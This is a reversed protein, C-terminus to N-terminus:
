TQALKGLTKSPLLLETLTPHRGSLNGVRYGGTDGTLALVSSGTQAPVPVVENTDSM